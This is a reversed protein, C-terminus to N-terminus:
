RVGAKESSMALTRLAALNVPDMDNEKPTELVKPVAAFRPDNMIFKFADRGIFGRGIHEHRDVRCGLDKKSDNMHFARLRDLGIHKDFEAMVGDYGPRTRLDYGAAFVHCTDFCVGIPDFGQVLKAMEDFRSGLTAGQGATTELLIRSRYGKTRDLIEGLAERMRGIGADAGSTMPSGPHSVLYDLGLRECRGLEETFADVSKRWLEPNPSALNHLYTDHAFAVKIGQQTVASKFRSAEEDSIPKARWQRENKTFVQIATCGLAGGKEAALHYGGAISMHAGLLM